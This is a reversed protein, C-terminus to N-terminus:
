RMRKLMMKWERDTPLPLSIKPEDSCTEIRDPRIRNKTRSFCHTCYFYRRADGFTFLWGKRYFRWWLGNPHFTGVNGCICRVKVTRNWIAAEFLDTPYTM